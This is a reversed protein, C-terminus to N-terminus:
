APLLRYTGRDHVRNRPTRMTPRVVNQWDAPLTELRASDVIALDADRCSEALAPADGNHIRVAHGITELGMLLGFFPIARAADQLSPKQAMTWSTDAIVAVNGPPESTLLREVAAVAEAPMTEKEGATIAMQRGDPGVIMLQRGNARIRVTALLAAWGAADSLSDSFDPKASLRIPLRREVILKMVPIAVSPAEGAANERYYWVQTGGKPAADMAHALGELTVPNGDLLVTGNALVSVKLVTAMDEIIECLGTRRELPHLVHLGIRRKWSRISVSGISTPTSSDPWPKLPTEGTVHFGRIPRVVVPAIGKKLSLAYDLERLCIESRISDPSVAFLLANATAIIQQIRKWWDEFKEIDTRDIATEIKRSRLARALEDVAPSDGRSHSIFVRGSGATDERTDM